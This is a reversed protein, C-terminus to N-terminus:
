GLGLLNWKKFLYRRSETINKGRLTSYWETNEKVLPCVSIANYNVIKWPTNSLQLFIDEHEYGQGPFGTDYRVDQFVNMRFLTAGHHVYNCYRYYRDAKDFATTKLRRKKDIWLTAGYHMLKHRPHGEIAAACVGVDQHTEMFDLMPKMHKTPMLDNDFMFLYKTKCLHTMANKVRVIPFYFKPIVEIGINEAWKILGTREPHIIAKFIHPFNAHKIIGEITTKTVDVRSVVPMIITVLCGEERDRQRAAKYTKFEEDSVTQTYTFNPPSETKKAPETVLTHPKIKNNLIGNKPLSANKNLRIIVCDSDVFWKKGNENVTYGNLTNHHPNKEMELVLRNLSNPMPVANENLMILYKYKKINYHKIADSQITTLPQPSDNNIYDVAWRDNWWSMAELQQKSQDGNNVLRVKLPFSHRFIGRMVHDVEWPRGSSVVLVAVSPRYPTVVNLAKRHDGIKLFHMQKNDEPQGWRRIKHWQHYVILESDFRLRMGSNRCTSAFGHEEWGWSGDFSTDFLGALKARRKSFYMCGGLVKNCDRNTKDIWMSVGIEGGHRQRGGKRLLGGDENMYWIWGTFLVSPDYIKRAHSLFNKNPVCDPDLILCADHKAHEIGYNRVTNLRYSHPMHKPPKIISTCLCDFEPVGNPSHDDVIIIEDEPHLQLVLEQHTKTLADQKEYHPIIISIPRLKIM